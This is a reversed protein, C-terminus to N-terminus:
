VQFMTSVWHQGGHYLTQTPEVRLIGFEKGLLEMDDTGRGNRQEIQAIHSRSNNNKGKSVNPFQPVGNSPIHSSDHTTNSVVSLLLDELRDIRSTLADRDMLQTSSQDEERREHSGYSCTAADGAKM